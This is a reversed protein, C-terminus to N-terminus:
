GPLALPLVGEHVYSLRMLAFSRVGATGFACADDHDGHLRLTHWHHAIAGVKGDVQHVDVIRYPHPHEVLSPGLLLEAPGFRNRGGFHYHGALALQVHRHPKLVEALARADPSEFKLRDMFPYPTIPPHARVATAHEKKKERDPM